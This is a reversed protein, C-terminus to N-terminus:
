SSPGAKEIPNTFIDRAKLPLEAWCIAGPDALIQIGDALHLTPNLLGLSLRRVVPQRIQITRHTYRSGIGVMRPQHEVQLHQSELTINGPDNGELERSFCARSGIGFDTNGIRMMGEGMM